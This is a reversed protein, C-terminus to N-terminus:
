YKTQAALTFYEIAKGLDYTNATTNKNYKQMYIKGLQTQSFISNLQSIQSQPAQYAAMKFYTVSKDLDTDIGMKEYQEKYITGLHAQASTINIQCAADEPTQLAAAVYHEIARNLDDTNDTLDYKQKYIKGLQVHAFLVNLKISRNDRNQIQASLLEAQPKKASASTGTCLIILLLRVCPVLNKTM